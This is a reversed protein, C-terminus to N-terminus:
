GNKKAAKVLTALTAHVQALAVVRNLEDNTVPGTRQLFAIRRLYYEAKAVHQERTVRPTESVRRPGLGLSNAAGIRAASIDARLYRVELNLSGVEHNLEELKTRTSM